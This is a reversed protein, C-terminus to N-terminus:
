GTRLLTGALGLNLALRHICHDVNRHSVESPNNKYWTQFAAKLTDLNLPNRATEYAGLATDVANLDPSRWHGTRATLRKWDALSIWDDGRLEDWSDAFGAAPALDREYLFRGDESLWLDPGLKSVKRQVCDDRNMTSRDFTPDFHTAGVSCVYHVPFLCRGDLVGTPAARVNGHAPGAFVPLPNTIMGSGMAGFCRVVEARPLPQAPGLGKRMHGVYNWTAHFARALDECNCHSADYAWHAKAYPMFNKSFLEQALTMGPGKWTVAPRALIEDLVRTNGRGDGFYGGTLDPMDVVKRTYPERAASVRNWAVRPTVGDRVERLQEM